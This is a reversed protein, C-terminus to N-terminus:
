EAEASIESSIDRKPDKVGADNSPFARSDSGLVCNTACILGADPLAGPDALDLACVLAPVVPVCFLIDTSTSAHVRASTETKGPM